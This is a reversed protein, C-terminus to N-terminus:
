RLPKGFVQTWYATRNDNLPNIAYAAGMETFTPNMLNACHGPSDIWAAVADQPTRNGSAINEGVLRFVYGERAARIGVDSGDKEQHSFYHNEAMNSSHAFAALGLAQNWTVAPAPGFDQTGCRRAQGRARNVEALIQRGADEWGPLDPIILPHALVIQWDSGRRATGIASLAPNLLKACYKQRLIDMAASADHPGSLSIAEARDARYGLTRLAPELFTGTVIRVRALAPELQFPAAAPRGGCDNPAARYVNILDVLEDARAPLCLALVAACGLFRMFNLM